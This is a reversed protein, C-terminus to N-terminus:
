SAVVTATTRLRKLLGTIEEMHAEAHQCHSDLLSALTVEGAEEHDGVNSWASVPVRRLMGTTVRRLAQFLEVAPELAQGKYGLERAWIHGAYASLKSGPQAAIMRLRMAGVIESDVIHHATQRASWEGDAPVADVLDVPIGKIVEAFADGGQAYREILLNAIDVNCDVKSAAIGSVVEPLKERLARNWLLMASVMSGGAAEFGSHELILRTGGDDASELRFRVITNLNGSVWRYTLQRPKEMEIVECEVAGESGAKAKGRFQFRHGTRPEFDNAMLWQTLEDRDTIARWVREPPFPYVAEFRLDRRM